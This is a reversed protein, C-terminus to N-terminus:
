KSQMFVADFKLDLRQRVCNIATIHINIEHKFKTHMKWKFEPVFAIDRRRLHVSFNSFCFDMGSFIISLTLKPPTQMVECKNGNCSELSDIFFSCKYRNEYRASLFFAWMRKILIHHYLMYEPACGSSCCCLKWFTDCLHVTFVICVFHFHLLSSVLVLVFSVSGVIDFWTGFSM